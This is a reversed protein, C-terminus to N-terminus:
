DSILYFICTRNFSFSMSMIALFPSTFVAIGGSKLVRKVERLMKLPEFLYGTLESCKVSDFSNNAFPLIQADGVVAPKFEFDIDLVTWDLERGHPFKGRTRGGGLDLVKGTLLNQSAFLDRDM